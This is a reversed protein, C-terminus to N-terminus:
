KGHSYALGEEELRLEVWEAGEWIIFEAGEVMLPSRHPYRYYKGQPQLSRRTKSMKTFTLATHKHTQTHEGATPEGDSGSLYRCLLSISISSGGCRSLGLLAIYELMVSFPCTHRIWLYVKSLYAPLATTTLIGIFLYM